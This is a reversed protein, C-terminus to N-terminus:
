LINANKYFYISIRYFGKSATLDIDDQYL